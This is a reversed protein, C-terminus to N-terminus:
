QPMDTQKHGERYEGPTIGLYKKFTRNFYPVNHFGSNAAIKIISDDSATLQLCAYKLRRKIIYASVTCNMTESFFGSFYNQNMHAIESIKELSLEEAFNNDIYNVADIIKLYNNQFRMVKDSFSSTEEFKRYLIALLKLILSKIVLKYGAAKQVLEADAEFMIKSIDSPVSDNPLRHKFGDKWEYFARIYQYDLQENQWVFDPNFVFILLEMKGNENIAYHYEYNNIIFIDGKKIPYVENGIYYKGGDSVAYNIELCYHNHWYASEKNQFGTGHFITFPFDKDLRIIETKYNM